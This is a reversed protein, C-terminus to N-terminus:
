DFGCLDILTELFSNARWMSILLNSGEIAYHSLFWFSDFGGEVSVVPIQNAESKM